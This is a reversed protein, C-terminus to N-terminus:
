LCLLLLNQEITSKLHDDPAVSNLRIEFAKTHYIKGCHCLPVLRLFESLRQPPM